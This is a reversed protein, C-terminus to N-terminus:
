YGILGGAQAFERNGISPLRRKMGLEAITGINAIFIAEDPITIAQVRGQEIRDLTDQFENAHRVPFRHLAVGISRAAIESGQADAPLPNDPNFLIAVSSLQPMLEKLLEVRKGSLEPSFFSSGTINGGPRAVSTVAGSAVPDGIIAAVIPVTATARKAALTGPTGHTIIVDVGSRVLEAALAPLRDYNGNAWRYSIMINKGETYGLDRLGDRLAAVHRAYGAESVAGLFGIHAVKSARQARAAVPWAAAGGLLTIVERRKM